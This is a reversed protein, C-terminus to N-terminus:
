CRPGDDGHGLRRHFVENAVNRKTISVDRVNADPERRGLLTRITRFARTVRELLGLAPEGAHLSLNALDVVHHNGFM